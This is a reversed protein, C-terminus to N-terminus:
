EGLNMLDLGSKDKLDLTFVESDAETALVIKRRDKLAAPITNLYMRQRFSAPSRTYFQLLNMLSDRDAKAMALRNARYGRAQSLQDKAQRDAATLEVAATSRATLVMQAAQENAGIVEQFAPVIPRPPQLGIVGVYVIDIGLEMESVARDIGARLANNLAQRDERLAGFIEQAAFLRTMERRALRRLLDQPELSRYAYTHVDAIRWQVVVTGALLGFSAQDAGQPRDSVVLLDGPQATSDLWLDTNLENEPLPAGLTLQHLETVNYRYVRDMPWPLKGHLGPGLTGDSLPQGWREVIVREGPNVIVWCSFLLLVIGLLGVLPVTFWAAQRLRAENLEVGFQYNLSDSISRLISRPQAVLGNLRSEYVLSEGKATRPRYIQLIANFVKEIGRLILVLALLRAAVQDVQQWDTFLLLVGIAAVASLWATGVAEGSVARLVPADGRFSQGALYSGLLYLCLAGVLILVGALLLRDQTPTGAAAILRLAWLGLLGEGLGIIVAAVPAIFREFQRLNRGKVQLDDGDQGFISDQRDALNEHERAEEAAMRRLASHVMTLLGIFAAVGAQMALVLPSVVTALNAAVLALVLQGLALLTAVLALRQQSKASTM